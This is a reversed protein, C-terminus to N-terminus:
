GSMLSVSGKGRHLPLLWGGTFEPIHQKRTAMKVHLAFARRASSPTDMQFLEIGLKDSGPAKTDNLNRMADEVEYLSPVHQSDDTTLQGLIPVSKELLQPNALSAIDTRDTRWTGQSAKLGPLQKITKGKGKQVM